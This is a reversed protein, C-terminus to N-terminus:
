PQSLETKADGIIRRITELSDNVVDSMKNEITPREKESMGSAVSHVMATLDRELMGYLADYRAHVEDVRILKPEPM